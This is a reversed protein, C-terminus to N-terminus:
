ESCLYETPDPIGAIEFAERREVCTGCKGCHAMGGKYCSWTKAFNVGLDTGIRVIDAKTQDIFPAVLNVPDYSCLAMATRMAGVFMPRCDPYVAHDGQHAGYIVTDCGNAIAVSTATALLVMNRNPVVTIRMSQDEYHGEPVDVATDTLCSGVLLSGLVRLDVYKWPVGLQEATRRAYAIEKDHRQGYDITVAITATGNAVAQYLAVTSDLGGSLVVATKM